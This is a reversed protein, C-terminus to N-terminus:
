LVLRGWRVNFFRVGHWISSLQQAVTLHSMRTRIAWNARKRSRKSVTQIKTDWIQKLAGSVSIGTMGLSEPCLNVGGLGWTEDAQEFQTPDNMKTRGVRNSRAVWLTPTKLRIRIFHQTKLSHGAKSSFTRGKQITAFGNFVSPLGAKQPNRIITTLCYDRDYWQWFLM